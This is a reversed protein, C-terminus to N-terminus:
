VCISLVDVQKVNELEPEGFPYGDVRANEVIGAFMLSLGVNFSVFRIRLLAFVLLFSFGILVTSVHSDHDHM